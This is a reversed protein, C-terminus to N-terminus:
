CDSDTGSPGAGGSLQRSVKEIHQATIDVHIMMPLEPCEISLNRLANKKPIPVISSSNQNRRMVCMIPNQVRPDSNLGFCSTKTTIFKKNCIEAEHLLEEFHGERWMDKRRMLLRRIDAGSKVMYNRQLITSCLVFIKESHGDNNLANVLNFIESSLLDVFHRGVNGQPLTYQKGLLKVTRKWRKRWEDDDDSGESNIISASYARKQNM